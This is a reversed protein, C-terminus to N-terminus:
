KTNKISDMFALVEKKTEEISKSTDLTLNPCDPDEFTSDENSNKNENSYVGKTDREVLINMPCKCFIEYYDNGFMKRNSKSIVRYPTIKTVMINKHERSLELVKSALKKCSLWRAERSYLNGYSLTKRFEDNDICYFDPYAEKIINEVTSKGSGSMGMIWIIM